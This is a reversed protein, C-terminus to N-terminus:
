NIIMVIYYIGYNSTQNNEPNAVAAVVVVYYNHLPFIVHGNGQEAPKVRNLGPDRNM